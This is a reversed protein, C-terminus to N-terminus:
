PKIEPALGQVRQSHWGAWLELKRRQRLIQQLQWLWWSALQQLLSVLAWGLFRWCMSRQHLITLQKMLWPPVWERQSEGNQDREHLWPDWSTWSRMEGHRDLNSTSSYHKGFLPPGPRLRVITPHLPPFQYYIQVATPPQHDSQLPKTNLWHSFIWDNNVEFVTLVTNGHVGPCTDTKTHTNRRPM